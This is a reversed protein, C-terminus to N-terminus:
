DDRRPEWGLHPVVIRGPSPTLSGADLWAELDRRTVYWRGGRKVGGVLEDAILARIFGTSRGLYDAAERLTMLEGM